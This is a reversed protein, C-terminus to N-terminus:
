KFDKKLAATIVDNYVNLLSYYNMYNVIWNPYGDIDFILRYNVTYNGNDQEIYDWGGCGISLPYGDTHYQHYDDSNQLLWYVRNNSEYIKFFYYLDSLIPISIYQKALITDQSIIPTTFINSSSTLIVNYNQIDKIIDLIINPNITIDRSIKIAKLSIYDVDKIYILSGDDLSEDLVWGEEDYLISLLEGNIDSTYCIALFFFFFFKHM